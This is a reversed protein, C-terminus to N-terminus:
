NDRAAAAAAAAYDGGWALGGVGCLMELRWHRCDNLGCIKKLVLLFLFM